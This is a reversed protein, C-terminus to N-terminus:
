QPQQTAEKHVTGKIDCAKRFYELGEAFLKIVNPQLSYKVFNNYAIALYYYFEEMTLKEPLDFHIIEVTSFSNLDSNNHNFHCKSGDTGCNIGRCMPEIFYDGYNLLENLALCTEFHDERLIDSDEIWDVIM